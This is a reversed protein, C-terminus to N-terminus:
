ADSLGNNIHMFRQYYFLMQQWVISVSQCCNKVSFVLTGPTPVAPTLIGTLGVWFVWYRIIYVKYVLM